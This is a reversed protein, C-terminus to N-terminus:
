GQPKIRLVRGEDQNVWVSGFGVALRVPAGGVHLRAVLRGSRPDIQDVNASDIVAVWVSGFALALGVPHPEAVKATLKGTGPDIRGVLDACGGGASWVASEDAVLYGAPCYPLKITAVVSNTTPDVRVIRNANPVAAWLAGSTAALSMHEACCALKPGVRITAVVHNTAPDIRSVSPGGADAVWVAGPSVAIGDPQLGVGIRATVKNTAPDIRSVTNESPYSLWVAGDGAAIAGPPSVKIRAVVVNRAPDIRMLTSEVDSMAWVAGEGVTFAGGGLPAPAGHGLRIRAVVQGGRPLAGANAATTQGSSAIVARPASTTSAASVRTLTSSAFSSVWVSSGAPAVDLDPGATAPPAVRIPRGVATHASLFFGVVRGRV